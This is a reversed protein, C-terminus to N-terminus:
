AARQACHIRELEALGGVAVTRRDLDPWGTPGLPADVIKRAWYTRACDALRREYWSRTQGDPMACLECFMEQLLDERTMADDALASAIVRIRAALTADFRRIREGRSM